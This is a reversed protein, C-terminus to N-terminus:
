GGARGRFLLLQLYRYRVHKPKISRVISHFLEASIPSSLQHLLRVVLTYELYYLTCVYKIRNSRRLDGIKENFIRLFGM